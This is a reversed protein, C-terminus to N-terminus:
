VRTDRVANGARLASVPRGPDPAARRLTAAGGRGDRVFLMPREQAADVARAFGADPDDYIWDGVISTDRLDQQLEAKTVRAAAIGANRALAVGANDQRVVRVRGGFSALVQPTEDTSGDDVALIDARPAHHRVQCLVEAVSRAENYIPCIVLDSM